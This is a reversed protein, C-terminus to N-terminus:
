LNEIKSPSLVAKRRRKVILMRVSTIALAIIVIVVAPLMYNTLVALLEPASAIEIKIDVRSVSRSACQFQPNCLEASGELRWTENQAPAVVEYTVHEAGISAPVPFVCIGYNLGSDSYRECPTPTGKPLVEAPQNVDHDWLTVRLYDGANVGSWSTSFSVGLLRSRISTLLM